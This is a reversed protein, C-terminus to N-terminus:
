KIAYFICHMWTYGFKTLQSNYCAYMQFFLSFTVYMITPSSCPMYKCVQIEVNCLYTGWFTASLSVGSGLDIHFFGSWSAQFFSVLKSWMFVIDLVITMQLIELYPDKGVHWDEFKSPKLAVEFPNKQWCLTWSDLLFYSEMLWPLWPLDWLQFFSKCWDFCKSKVLQFFSRM